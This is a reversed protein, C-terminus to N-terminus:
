LQPTESSSSLDQQECKLLQSAESSSLPKSFFYGQGNDCHIKTLYEAQEQSEIGEATVSMNLSKALSVITDVLVKKVGNEEGLGQVCSRDIKVTTIPDLTLYHMSSYGTGFDDLAVRVGLSTLQMLMKNLDISPSILSKETLEIELHRGSLNYKNLLYEIETILELNRLQFTSLNVTVYLDTNAITHWQKLAKLSETLIFCGVKDMLHLRELVPVYDEPSIGEETPNQWRLLAEFAKIKDTKLDIIPQFHVHFEQNDFAQKIAHELTFVKTSNALMPARFFEYSSASTSRKAEYMAMDAASILADCTTGHDPFFSVGISAGIKISKEELRQIGNLSSIIKEAIKALVNVDEVDPVVVLFEDGGQRGVIDQERLSARLNQAVLTLLQDGFKHGYNDNILKFGNLDIFFVGIKRDGRKARSIEQKLKTILSKRNPLDTLLDHSAQHILKKENLRKESVDRLVTIAVQKGRLEALNLSIEVPFESGDKKLAYLSLGSGMERASHNGYFQDIKKSHDGFRKPILDSIKLNCLEDKGYGFILAAQSNAKTIEGSRNSVILADPSSDILKNSWELAASAARKERNIKRQLLSFYILLLVFLGVLMVVDLKLQELASVSNQELRQEPFYVFLIYLAGLTFVPLFIVLLRKILQYPKSTGLDSKAM